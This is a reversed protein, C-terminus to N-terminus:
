VKMLEAMVMDSIFLSERTLALHSGNLQLLGNDLFRRAANTCYLREESSLANLDLGQCTRLAVTVLDNYRTWGTILESDEVPSLGQEARRLFEHLDAVNWYRRRGDYSHAAPGLGLYPVGRWYNNNHVARYSKLGREGQLPRPSLSWNSIEYHEFGAAALRDLLLYYMQRQLEESPEKAQKYLPTGEEITLCYASLHEPRLALASSIDRQWDDLTEDPFGYMLDISINRFGAHRLHQVAQGVQAATHRRNLLRLRQDSFTQAGMSVRNVPLKALAAAYSPTVDDPNCEITVEALPSVKYRNYISLFLQELQRPTLQSPTGGGLYITEITDITDITAISKILADVYRQRLDLLTTSYFACYSCRRKCFPIHVYLGTM